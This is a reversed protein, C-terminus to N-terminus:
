GSNAYTENVVGRLFVEAEEKTSPSKGTAQMTLGKIVQFPLSTSKIIELYQEALTKKTSKVRKVNEGCGCGM